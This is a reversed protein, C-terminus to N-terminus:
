AQVEKAFHEAVEEAVDAGPIRGRVEDMVKDLTLNPINKVDHLTSYRVQQKAKEIFSALESKTLRSPLAAADFGSKAARRLVNLVGDKTLKGDKVAQLVARVDKLKFDDYAFGERRLRRPYRWLMIAADMATFGMEEVAEKFLPALPSIALGDIADSPVGAETFERVRDWYQVPMRLRLRELREPEICIPPLDTDPYMRQPGPLIREFGTTGDRLAQRTESPIGVTVEKARIAIEKVATEVDGASGWVIVITDDKGCDLLKKAEKWEAGSLTESM